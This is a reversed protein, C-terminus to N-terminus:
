RDWPFFGVAVPDQRALYGKEDSGASATQIDHNSKSNLQLMGRQMLDIDDASSRFRGLAMQACDRPTWHAKMIGNESHRVIGQMNTLRGIKRRDHGGRESWSEHM